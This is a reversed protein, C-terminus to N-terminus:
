LSLNDMDQPLMHTFVSTLFVSDFSQTEFSFGYESWKCKGAPNYKKNYIM